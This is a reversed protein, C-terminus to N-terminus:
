SRPSNLRRVIRRVLSRPSFRVSQVGLRNLLGPIVVAQGRMMGRYGVEAVAQATHMRLLGRSFLRIEHMGARDGFGTRTPGPCLATATVGTGRLEEALAESFSLVF